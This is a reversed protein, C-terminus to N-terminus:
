KESDSFRTIPLILLSVPFILISAFAVKDRLSYNIILDIQILQDKNKRQHFKGKNDESMRPANERAGNEERDRDRPHVYLNERFRM